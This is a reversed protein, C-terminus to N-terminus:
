SMKQSHRMIAIEDLVAAEKKNIFQRWALNQKEKLQCMIKHERACHSLNKREQHVIKEKNLLTKKIEAIEHKIYDARGEYMILREINVGQLQINEIEQLFNRYGEEKEALKEAIITRNKEATTLRTVTADKRRKRHSLVTELSFPKTPDM